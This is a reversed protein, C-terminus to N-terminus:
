SPLKSTSIVIPAPSTSRKRGEILFIRSSLHLPEEAYKEQRQHRSIQYRRQHIAINRKGSLHTGVHLNRNEVASRHRKESRRINQLNHIRRAQRRNAPFPDIEIGIGNFFLYLPIRNNLSGLTINSCRALHPNINRLTYRQQPDNGRGARIIDIGVGTDHRQRFPNRCIEGHSGAMYRPLIRAVFKEPKQLRHCM